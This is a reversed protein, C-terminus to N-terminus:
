KIKKETRIDGLKAFFQPDEYLRVEHGKISLDGAMTLAGNGGGIIAIKLSKM